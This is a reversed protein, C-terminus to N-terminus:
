FVYRFTAGLFVAYNTSFEGKARVGQATQDIKGDGFWTYSCGLSYSLQDNTPSEKGYAFGFKFQEDVPLLFTRYKDDVPSSDYGLGGSVFRGGDDLKYIAGAGVHYTDKWHFDATQIVPGTPLGGIEVREKGLESWDEWDFDAVLTLNDTAQYQVGVSILQAYDLDLEIDDINGTIENIIPNQIGKVKLDGDLEVESKTRYLLGFLVKETPQWNVSFFGQPSWDDIQNISLEGDPLPNGREDEQKISVDSDLVTYIATVGAGISWQDNIKYGVSSSIGLGSLMSRNAQYRGVFSSGYDVGGGLPATIAIGATFDNPLKKVVFLSPIPVVSAANGGDSGGAEAIDSDFRVNPILVQLGSLITDKEIGTMGAPNTYVADASVNNVVNASGATGLSAPTGLESLYIGGAFASTTVLLLTTAVSLTLKLHSM